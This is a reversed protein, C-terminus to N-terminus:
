VTVRFRGSHLYDMVLRTLFAVVEFKLAADDRPAHLKLEDCRKMLDSLVQDIRYRYESTWRSVIATLERRERKLYGAATLQPGPTDAGFLRRLDRDLFPPYSSGYLQKKKDYHRRLTLRLQKLPLEARRTRVPPLQDNLEKMLEDVYHLKKMAPWGRYRSRWDSAPNLWVAFTEAWDEDPHSQAYWNDLHVVFRKSYPHPLYSKPYKQTSKGFHQQWDRRRHLRFANAYAHGTEHRMLELCSDHDGGEVELMMEQELRKLRPHALYFPVAFGPIGDPSFWEDSLWCHPKFVFGRADLEQHLERVYAAVPTGEIRLDLDCLRLDLLAERPRPLVCQAPRRTRTSRSRPGM